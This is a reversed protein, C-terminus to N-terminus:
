NNVGQYLHNSENKHKRKFESFGIEGLKYLFERIKKVEEDTYKVGYKSLIKKCKEHSLMKFKYHL